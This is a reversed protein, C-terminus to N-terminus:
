SINYLLHVHSYPAPTSVGTYGSYLKFQEKLDQQAISHLFTNQGDQSTIFSGELVAWDSCSCHLPLTNGLTQPQLHLLLLCTWLCGANKPMNQGQLEREAM